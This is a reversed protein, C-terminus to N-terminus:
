AAISAGIPAKDCLENHKQARTTSEASNSIRQNKSIELKEAPTGPKVHSQRRVLRPDCNFQFNTSVFLTHIHSTKQPLQQHAYHTSFDHSSEVPCRHTLAAHM